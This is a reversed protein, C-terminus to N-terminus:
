SYIGIGYIADGGEAFQIIRFPSSLRTYTEVLLDGRPIEESGFCIILVIKFLLTPGEFIQSSFDWERALIGTLGLSESSKWHELCSFPDIGASAQALVIVQNQTLHQILDSSLLSKDGLGLIKDIGLSVLGGSGPQWTLWHLIIYILNSLSRWIRSASHSKHTPLHLWNLVTSNRIYKDM